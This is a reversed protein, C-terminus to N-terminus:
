KYRQQPYEVTVLCPGGVTGTSFGWLTGRSILYGCGMQLFAAMFVENMHFYCFSFLGEDGDWVDVGPFLVLQLMCVVVTNNEDTTPSLSKNTRSGGTTQLQESCTAGTLMFM